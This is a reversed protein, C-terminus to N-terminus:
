QGPKYREGAFQLRLGLQAILSGETTTNHDRGFTAIAWADKRLQYELVGAVRYLREAVGEGTPSSLVTEFSVAYRDDHLILRAGADLYDPQADSRNATYRLLVVPTLKAGDPMATSRAWSLSSWVGWREFGGQDWIRNDFAWGAAAAIELMPGERELAINEFRKRGEAISDQYAPDALIQADLAAAAVSHMQVAAAIATQRQADSLQQAAQLRVRLSDDLIKLRAAAMRNKLGGEAALSQELAILTEKSARTLQGSLMMFRGGVAVGTQPALENGIEATAASWTLTRIISQEITRATDARWTLDPHRRLWFPSLEVAFEEPITSLRETRNVLMLGFDAPSSPREISTPSVGLLMFAPAATPKLASLEPVKGQAETAAPVAVQVLLVMFGLPSVAATARRLM